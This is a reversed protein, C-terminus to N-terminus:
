LRGGGDTRLFNNDSDNLKKRIYKEREPGHPMALFNVGDQKMWQEIVVLPISAVHKLDKSPTYGDTGDNQRIKNMDLIPEVDQVREIIYQGASVDEHWRTEIWDSV